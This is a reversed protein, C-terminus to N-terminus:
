QKKIGVRTRPTETPRVGGCQAMVSAMSDLWSKLGGILNPQENKVFSNRINTKFSDNKRRKLASKCMLIEAQIDQCKPSREALKVLDALAEDLQEALRIRAISRRFIGKMNGPDAAIVM